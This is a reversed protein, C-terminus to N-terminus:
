AAEICLSGHKYIISKLSQDKRRFKFVKRFPLIQDNQFCLGQIILLSGEELIEMKAPDIGEIDLINIGMNLYPYKESIEIAPNSFLYAIFSNVTSPIINQLNLNM